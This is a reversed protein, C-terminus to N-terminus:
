PKTNTFLAKGFNYEVTASLMVNTKYFKVDEIMRIAPSLFGEPVCFFLNGKVSIFHKQSGSLGPTKVFSINDFDDVTTPTEGPGVTNPNAARRGQCYARYQSPSIYYNLPTGDLAVNADTKQCLQLVENYANTADITGAVSTYVNSAPIDGSAVGQGIKLNLGDMSLNTGQATPSGSRVGKFLGKTEILSGTAGALQSLFAYAFPKMQIAEKLTPAGAVKKVHSRAMKIIESRPFELDGDIDQFNPVKAGLKLANQPRWDDGAPRLFDVVEMSWLPTRGDSEIVTFHQNIWPMGTTMFDVFMQPNDNLITQLEAPLLSIDTVINPM